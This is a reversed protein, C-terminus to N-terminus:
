QIILKEVKTETGYDLKIYYIGKSMEELNIQKNYDSVKNKDASKYVERGQIDLVTLILEDFDSNTIHITFMGNTPNPYITIENTLIIEKVGVCNDVTISQMATGTCGLATVSYLVTDIGAASPTITNGSVGNGSYTGGSPTGVPLTITGSSLCVTDPSFSALTVVPIPNVTVTVSATNHCANGDTGTVIYTTTATTPFGVGDTVSNNWTYSIAGGGTLTDLTGACVPGLTTASATVTPLQNVSVTSVATSSCSGSTATLTYNTQTTPSATATGAGTAAAGTSWTYTNGGNATLNAVDGACITPSNVTINLATVVTVTSVATNICGLNSTGTVTYSTTTSPTAFATNIGTSGAGTSWTYTAAGNAVLNATGATCITPSNVTVNPIPNFTVTAVATGSCNGTTGTVTYSSPASPTAAATNVGTSSAGASWTYSTAGNATFHAVYGPCVSPSNVTVTPSQIVTVVKISSNTCGNMDTGTVTYTATATAIFAVGDTIGNSWNYSSAGSGTLIENSGSCVPNISANATVNPLQNVTITATNTNVCGHIDTGTVTYTTTTTAPFSVGNTIGNSWVYSVAGGATLSDNSGACIPNISATATVAPLQNVIVTATATNSCSNGDTGTVTYTTTATSIFAAGNTIGNSWAYSIAGGGRLTDNSGACIPSLSATATVVPLQNVTVTSVASSTCSGSIASVTYTTLTTPSATATGSGTPTAGASWTYTNGGNAVLNAPQGICITPSNVNINLVNSVTVTAVATNVCGFGSTGTVTYSTTGSPTASATNVGTSTAGASWIYSAGGSASLNATATPCITPSNVTINPLQNVTVSAIATGSCSGTTGTVTYTTTISPSATASDAGVSTAGSSWSYSTGGNATLHAMDGACISPSNVTIAPSQIVTINQTATNQCGNVDTGTVTYTATTNAIFGQGDTVGSSWIYSVAGGGRLTDNLGSCVPNISATTTVTPLQNVNVTISNTNVCGNGDTGTVTYTTTASETFSVGNSVGNNWVYSSAGSGSLTESNGICIPNSSALAGVSPLQNVIVSVTDTNKCGNGDTGTVTYTTTTNATFATGNTVGNSWLYSSAGAGRLTDSSGACLPSLSATGTVTPLQNVTVTTTATNTCGHSDTGTVTYTTTTSAPFAVANTVGNSWSYSTANGGGTLTENSGTCIQTLSSSATVTPLQNVTIAVSATNICGHIDTGTVTYTATANDPFAIGDTVGGTWKYTSAGGGTLIEGSGRCIPNSSASATVTPVPNVTVTIVSTASCFTTTNYGTVSYTTTTTATFPTGSTVTPNWLYFNANGTVTLTESKGACIPNASSTVNVTPAANVTVTSVATGPCGSATGTVTYSTTATPAATATDHGVFTVGSSWSYTIGPATSNAILTTTAGSCITTSNVTVVPAPNVTVTSVATNACGLNSTGTVTYSATTNPSATATNVGTSTAGTSWTYSTGGNATLTTANGPCIAPSNVTITPLQLVTVTAVATDICSGSHGTVTYTTLTTPAATASDIGISTAGASWTYTNAGGAVLAATEGSCISPSNVTVTLSSVVNVTAAATSTCGNATGSVTYTSSTVPSAYATDNNGPSTAGASWTYTAAGSAVLTATGGNCITPSNVTVNPSNDTVTAVATGSCGSATGTVTYSTTATPSATATDHGVFAAGASWTYSTAGGAVLTASQGTCIAPSNVTVTPLATVTVTAIATGSCTGSTGTVTYSTTNNPHATATDNGTAGASWTYNSAGSAILTAIGGRCIAPSNVTVTPSPNVSVLAVATNTCTGTTGTVTYSTTTTPSATATTAGTSTAGASWTYTTAGSATLTAARGSCITPSNVTVNPTNDHVTAVATGSCGAATTGTVTYITTAAPSATATDHGVFTAGASWSYTLGGTTSNAILIAIQGTCITPSNVTVTPPNVVTVTSVATASCGGTTGTVTYTTTNNPAVTASDSTGIPTVGASWTYSTAGGAVLTATTGPGAARCITPSNVTVTPLPNVTVTAVATNSCTGSTGTVTYSTTASPHATATNPGSSTAGTSWTYTTAGGATLTATQGPCIAPSNVTVNLSTVVTVTSVATNSCAGSTGTVTYSTTASPSATATDHGVFTAGSSWTYTTAGSAVLTATGGICITPSNVAVPLPNVTITSVATGSCTAITATVTYTSTVTPSVTATDHGVATVGASWSYAATGTTGTGLPAILTVTQGPCITASNVTVTPPRTVTVTSVATASCGGATGTVTYSTTNAPNATATDHGVVTAGASWTYTAAGNAVLIAPTGRCIGPSNVTVTPPANVTIKIATSTDSSGSCTVACNYYTTSVATPTITLTSLTDNTINAFTISDPSSMWQYKVGSGATANQLSLTFNTGTCVTAATSLTNGPAPTGSCPAPMTYNIILSPVAFNYTGSNGLVLSFCAYNAAQQGTLYNLLSTATAASGGTPGNTQLTLPHTGSWSGTFLNTTAGGTACRSYLTTGTLLSIDDTAKNLQNTTATSNTTGAATSYILNASTITAGTPVSSLNFKFWGRTNFGTSTIGTLNNATQTGIINVKGYSAPTLTVVTQAMSAPILMSLILGCILSSLPIAKRQSKKTIKRM